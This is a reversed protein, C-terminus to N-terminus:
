ARFRRCFPAPRSARGSKRAGHADVPPVARLTPTQQCSVRLATHNACAARMNAWRTLGPRRSCAQAATSRSLFRYEPSFGCPPCTSSSLWLEPARPRSRQPVRPSQPRSASAGARRGVRLLGHVALRRQLDRDHRRQGASRAEEAVRLQAPRLVRDLPKSGAEPQLHLQQGAVRGDLLAGRRRLRQRLLVDGVLPDNRHDARGGRTRDRRRALRVEGGAHRVDRRRCGARRQRLAGRTFPRRAEEPDDRAVEDLARAVRPVHDVLQVDLLDHDDVELLRVRDAQGVRRLGNQLCAVDVVDRSDVDTRVVSKEDSTVRVGLSASM